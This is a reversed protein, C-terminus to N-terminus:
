FLIIILKTKLINHYLSNKKHDYSTCFYKAFEVLSSSGIVEDGHISSSIYYSPRDLTYSEFDTLFVILNMCPKKGCNKFSDLNYRSQSTDIKIYHSCTKSLEEFTQFIEDYNYHTYLKQSFAIKLILILLFINLSSHQIVNKKNM